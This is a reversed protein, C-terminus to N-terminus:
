GGVWPVANQLRGHKPLSIQKRLKGKGKRLKLRKILFIHCQKCFRILLYAENIFFFVEHFSWYFITKLYERQHSWRGGREWSSKKKTLIEEKVFLFVWRLKWPCGHTKRKTLSSIRVLSFDEQSHRPPTPQSCHTKRKTLSSIRVLFFDEHPPSTSTM